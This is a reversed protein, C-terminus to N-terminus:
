KANLGNFANSAHLHHQFHHSVFRIGRREELLFDVVQLRLVEVPNQM